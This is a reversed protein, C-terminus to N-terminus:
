VRFGWYRMLTPGSGQVRLVADLYARFGSGFYARCGSGWYRMLTPGSGQVRLHRMLAFGDHTMIVAWTCMQMCVHHGCGCMCACTTGLYVGLQWGVRGAQVKRTGSSGSAAGVVELDHSEPNVGCSCLRM